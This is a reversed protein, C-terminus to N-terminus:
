ADEGVKEPQIEGAELEALFRDVIGKQRTEEHLSEGVIRSALDTSLRGVESRLSVVAQQREAEIQKHASETIRAAESQAHGRMEAVIAAGQERAEERIRAGEARAETLQAQYQELAAQAQQQAEEAQQMGGEIAATREAYAKELNPVVRTQIVWYLVGFAIIGFILEGWLPLIPLREGTKDEAAAAVVVQTIGTFHQV